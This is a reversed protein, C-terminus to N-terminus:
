HLSLITLIFRQTAYLIIDVAVNFDFGDLECVAGTDLDLAAQLLAIICRVAPAPSHVLENLLLGYPSALLNAHQTPVVVPEVNTVHAELCSQPEFLVGDLIGRLKHSCLKHIRDNSSFFQLVLPMRIYPVTLFSLLLESDRQSLHSQQGDQGDVGHEPLAQQTKAAREGTAKSRRVLTAHHQKSAASELLAAEVTKGASEVVEDDSFSPLNKRYIIDDEGRIAPKAVHFSPTATSPWRAVPVPKGVYLAPNPICHLAGIGAMGAATVQYGRQQQDWQWNLQMNMRPIEPLATGSGISAMQLPNNPFANMDPNLFYKWWFSIDRYAFFEPFDRQIVSATPSRSLLMVVIGAAGSGGQDLAVAAATNASERLISRLYKVLARTPRLPFQSEWDYINELRRQSPSRFYDLVATRAAVLEPSHIQVTATQSAFCGVSIGYGPLGLQKGKSTCGFLHCCAASPHDTAARRMVSDAIAAIVGPVICCVADFARNQPISIAAAAFHEMLRHLTSMLSEQLGYTMEQDWICDAQKLTAEEEAKGRALDPQPLNSSDGEETSTPPTLQFRAGSDKWSRAVIGLVQSRPKIEELAVKATEPDEFTLVVCGVLSPFPGGGDLQSRLETPMYRQNFVAEKQREDQICEVTANAAADLIARMLLQDSQDASDAGPVAEAPQGEAIQDVFAQGGAVNDGGADAAQAAQAAAEVVATAKAAAAAAEEDRYSLGDRAVIVLRCQEARRKRGREAHIRSSVDDGVARPKPVPVCTTLVHQIFSVILFKRNKICHQQNEMLTCLRDCTRLADVAEDRTYVRRPVQTLDVAMYPSSPIAQGPDPPSQEIEPALLDYSQVLTPDDSDADADADTCGVTQEGGQPGTLSLIPPSDVDDVVPGVLRIVREVLQRVNDVAQRWQVAGAEQSDSGDSAEPEPATETEYQEEGSPSLFCFSNLLEDFEDSEQGQVTVGPGTEPEPASEQPPDAGAAQEASGSTRDWLAALKATAYSLQACSMEIVKAGNGDPRVHSLDRRIFEVFQARLAVSVLKCDLVEVDRSRLMFNMAELLCRVYSTNSRQPSRWDGYSGAQAGDAATHAEVLSEELSKGTLFPLLIDYFRTTDGDRSQLTLNYVAMWFVDDLAQAEPVSNLVLSSRFKLKSSGSDATVAHHKLGGEPDTNIVVFRFVGKTKRHILFLLEQGSVFAPVLISEGPGLATLMKKLKRLFWFLQGPNPTKLLRQMMTFCPASRRMVYLMDAVASRVASGGRLNKLLDLQDTLMNQMALNLVSFSWPLASTGEFTTGEIFPDGFLATLTPALWVPRPKPFLEALVLGQRQENIQAERMENYMSIVRDRARDEEVQKKEACVKDVRVYRVSIGPMAAMDTSSFLLLGHDADISYRGAAAFEGGQGEVTACPKSDVYTHMGSKDKSSKTKAAAPQGFPGSPAEQPTDKEGTCKVTIVVRRWRQAEV